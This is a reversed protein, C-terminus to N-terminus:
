MTPFGLVVYVFGASATFHTAQWTTERSPLYRTAGTSAVDPLLRHTVCTVFSAGGVGSTFDM